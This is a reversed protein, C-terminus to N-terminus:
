KNQFASFGNTNATHSMFRVNCASRKDRMKKRDIAHLLWLNSQLEQFVGFLNSHKIICFASTSFYFQPKSAESLEGKM